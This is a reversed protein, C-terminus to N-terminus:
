ERQPYAVKKTVNEKRENGGQFLDTYLTAKIPPTPAKLPLNKFFVQM